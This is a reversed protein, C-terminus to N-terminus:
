PSSRARETDQHVSSVVMAGGAVVIPSAPDALCATEESRSSVIGHGHVLDGAASKFIARAPRERATM